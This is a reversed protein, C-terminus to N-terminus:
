EKANVTSNVTFCKFAKRQFCVKNQQKETKGNNIDEIIIRREIDHIVDKRLRWYVWSQLCHDTGDIPIGIVTRIIKAYVWCIFDIQKVLNPKRAKKWGYNRASFTQNSYGGLLVNFLVSIAIGVRKIYQFM